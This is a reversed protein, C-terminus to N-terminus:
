FGSWSSASSARCITSSIWTAPRPILRICMRATLSRIVFIRMFPNSMPTLKAIQAKLALTLRNTSRIWRNLEGKETRIGKQELKRVNPGEHVTPIQELSQRAYSRHDIRSPIGKEEFKANVANCWATRWSELREPSHWDTTHVANFLCRGDSGRIRNGNADLVYERRQKPAFSGDPNLPRMTTMVHM